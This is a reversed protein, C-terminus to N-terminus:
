DAEKCSHDTAPTVKEQYNCAFCSFDLINIEGNGDCDFCSGDKGEGGWCSNEVTTCSQDLATCGHRNGTGGALRKCANNVCSFHTESVPKCRGDVTCVKGDTCDSDTTCTIERSCSEAVVECGFLNDGAGSVRKCANSVCDLHTQNLPKCSNDVCGQGSPCDSDKTCGTSCSGGVATCGNKDDGKGKVWKCANSVCELHSRAKKRCKGDVCVKNGSCESDDECGTGGGDESELALVLTGGAALTGSEEDLVEKGKMLAAKYSGATSKKNAWQGLNNAPVVESFRGKATPGEIFVDLGQCNNPCTAKVQLTGDSSQCNGGQQDCCYRCYSGNGPRVNKFCNDFCSNNGGPPPTTGQCEASDAVNCATGFHYSSECEGGCVDEGSQCPDNSDYIPPNVYNVTGCLNSAGSCVKGADKAKNLCDVAQKARQCKTQGSTQNVLIACAGCDGADCQCSLDNDGCSAEPRLITSLPNQVRLVSLTLVGGLAVILLVAGIVGLQKPRIIM